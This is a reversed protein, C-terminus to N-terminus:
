DAKFNGRLLGYEIVDVFEGNKFMAVMRVGEQVFGLSVALRQM